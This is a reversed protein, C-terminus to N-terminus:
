QREEQNNKGDHIRKAQSECSKEHFKEVIVLSM